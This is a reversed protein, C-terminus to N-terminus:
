DSGRREGGDGNGHPGGSGALEAAAKLSILSQKELDPGARPGGAAAAGGGSATSPDTAAAADLAEQLGFDRRRAILLAFLAAGLYQSVVSAWGCGAMGGGMRFMFLEDLLLNCANSACVVLLPTRLDLLSRFAAQSVCMLLAAPLGLARIRLYTCADQLTEPHAAFLALAGAPAYALAAALGVGIVAAAALAQAFGRGVGAADGRAHAAAMAQTAIVALATFFLFFLCNFLAGNSGLAALPATGLRGVMATDVLSMLPDGMTAGAVALANLAVEKDLRCPALWAWGPRKELEALAAIYGGGGGGAASGRGGRPAHRAGPAPAPAPAPGGKLLPAPSASRSRSSGRSHGSRDRPGPSAHPRRPSADRRRLLAAEGAAPAPAGGAPAAGAADCAPPEDGLSSRAISLVTHTTVISATATIGPGPGDPVM